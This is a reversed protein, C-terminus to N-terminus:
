QLLPPHMPPRHEVARAPSVFRRIQFFFLLAALPSVLNLLITALM